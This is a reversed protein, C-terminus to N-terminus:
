SRRFTSGTSSRSRSSAGSRARRGRPGATRPRTGADSGCPRRALTACRLLTSSSSTRSRSSRHLPGLELEIVRAGTDCRAPRRDALEADSRPTRCRRSRRHRRTASRRRDSRAIRRRRGCSRSRGTPRARPHLGPVHVGCCTDADRGTAATSSTACSAASAKPSPTAYADPSRCCGASISGRARPSTRSRRAGRALARRRDRGAAPRDAARLRASTLGIEDCPLDVADLTTAASARAGDVVEAFCWAGHWAGHVLVFRAM